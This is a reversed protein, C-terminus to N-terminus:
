LTNISYIHWYPTYGSLKKLKSTIVYFNCLFTKAQNRLPCSSICLPWISALRLNFRMWMPSQPLKFHESHGFKFFNEMHFFIWQLTSIKWISEFLILFNMYTCLTKKPKLSNLPQIEKTNGRQTLCLFDPWDEKAVCINANQLNCCKM